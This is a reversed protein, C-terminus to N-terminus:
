KIEKWSGLEESELRKQFRKDVIIYKKSMQHLMIVANAHNQEIEKIKEKVKDPGIELLKITGDKWIDIM